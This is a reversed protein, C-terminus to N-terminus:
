PFRFMFSAKATTAGLPSQEIFSPVYCYTDGSCPDKFTFHTLDVRFVFNRVPVFEAGGGLDMLPLHQRTITAGPLGIASNTNMIGPGALAFLNFKYRNELRWTAKLNFTAIIDAKPGTPGCDCHAFHNHSIVQAEGAFVKTFNVTGRAGWGWIPHDICDGVCSVIPGAEFRPPQQALASACLLLLLGFSMQVLRM